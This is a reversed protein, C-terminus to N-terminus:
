RLHPQLALQTTCQVFLLELEDILRNEVQPRTADRAQLRQAAPCVGGTPRDRGVQKDAHGFLSSQDYGEAVPYQVLGAPLQADPLLRHRSQSANCQIYIYRAHLKGLGAEGDIRLTHDCLRANTGCVERELDGLAYQDLFEGTRQRIKKGQAVSSHLDADVVEACAIRRQARQVLQWDSLDLDITGEQTAHATSAVSLFNHPRDDRHTRREALSHDSLSDLGFRLEVREDVKIAGLALAVQERMRHGVAVDLQHHFFEPCDVAGGASNVVERDSRSRVGGTEQRAQLKKRTAM